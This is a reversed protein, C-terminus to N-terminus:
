GNEPEEEPGAGVIRDLGSADIVKRQLLEECLAELEARHTQVLQRARADADKLLTMVARDIETKVPESPAGVRYSGATVEGMGLVEVIERAIATARHLDAAAGVSLDGLITLEAARGGFLVCLRDLLQKRTIVERDVPDALRVSGLSGGLDGVITIREIPPVHECYLACIAHGCEHIAVVREEAPTLRPREVNASLAQEVDAPRSPGSREERMRIRALARAMAYLHDGTYPQDTGEVPDRTRRVAYTLAEDSLQLHLKADYIQLIERRDAENPFPVAIHFEFRGPRLLAPDLASVFNTTGVVFVMENDRFGDMETLLTNVMAHQVGSTDASGDRRSAFSDLEDFVVIAPASQRAQVFVRRLNAESEGVWKSKLEPGSVVLVAAGLASALAKAFLTKGTGPPGHFIIGRPVLREIREAQEASTARQHAKVLDVIETQLQDKVRRYGGVDRHLDLDPVSVDSTLTSQRLQDWAPRPDAPYDEGDLASLARRLQVANVGSVYKYLRFVPLERGLKRAEAQTVLAGLRDRPVGLIQVKRPFLNEIVDPVALSLDRFALWVLTPNEYLLAIAERAEGSLGGGSVGGMLLDLHPIVLVRQDVAGRVANKLHHLTLGMMGVGQPDGEQPRGDLYVAALGSAKLRHRLCRYFYPVLQKDCSVLVPLGRTLAEHAQALEAAYAAETATTGDLSTPLEHEPLTLSM